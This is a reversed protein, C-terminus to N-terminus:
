SRSLLLYLLLSPYDKPFQLLVCGILSSLNHGATFSFTVQTAKKLNRCGRETNLNSDEQFMVKEVLRSLGLPRSSEVMGLCM